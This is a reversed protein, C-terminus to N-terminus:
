STASSTYTSMSRLSAAANARSQTSLPARRTPGPIWMISQSSLFWGHGASVCAWCTNRGGAGHRPSSDGFGVRTEYRSVGVEPCPCQGVDVVPAAAELAELFRALQAAHQRGSRRVPDRHQGIVNQGRLALHAAGLWST